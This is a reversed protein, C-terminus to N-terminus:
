QYMRKGTAGEAEAADRVIDKVDNPSVDEPYNYKENEIAVRELLEGDNEIYDRVGASFGARVGIIYGVVIAISALLIKRLM